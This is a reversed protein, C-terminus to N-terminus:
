VDSFIHEKFFQLADIITGNVKKYKAGRFKDVVPFCSDWDLYIGRTRGEWVIYFNRKSEDELDMKKIQKLDFGARFWDRIWKRYLGVSESSSSAAVQATKGSKTPKKAPPSSSSSSSLKKKKVKVKKEKSKRQRDEDAKGSERSSSPHVQDKERVAQSPEPKAPSAIQAWSKASTTTTTTTAVVVESDVKTQTPPHSKGVLVNDTPKVEVTTLPTVQVPVPISGDGEDTLCSFNESTIQPASAASIQSTNKTGTANQKKKAKSVRKRKLKSAHSIYANRLFVISSWTERLYEDEDTDKMLTIVFRCKAM